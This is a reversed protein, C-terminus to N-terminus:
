RVEVQVPRYSWRLFRTGDSKKEVEAFVRYYRRGTGSPARFRQRYLFGWFYEANRGSPNAREAEAGDRDPFTPRGTYERAWTAVLRESPDLKLRWNVNIRAGPSVKEPAWAVVEFGDNTLNREVHRGWAPEFPSGKTKTGRAVVKGYSDIVQIRMEDDVVDVLAFNVHRLHDRDARSGGSGTILMDLGKKRRYKLHEHHGCFVFDM